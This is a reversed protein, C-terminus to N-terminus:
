FVVTLVGLVRGATPTGGGSGAGPGPGEARVGFSIGPRTRALRTATQVAQRVPAVHPEIRGAIDPIDDLSRFGGVEGLASRLAREGRGFVGGLSSLDVPMQNTPFTLQM